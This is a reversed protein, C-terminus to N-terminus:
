KKKKKSTDFQKKGFQKAANEKLTVFEYTSEKDKPDTLKYTALKPSTFVVIKLHTEPLGPIFSHHLEDIWMDKEEENINAIFQEVQERSESLGTTVALNAIDVDGDIKIIDKKPVFTFKGVKEGAYLANMILIPQYGLKEALKSVQNTHEVQSAIILENAIEDVMSM